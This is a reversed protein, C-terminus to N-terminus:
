GSHRVLEEIEAGMGAYPDRMYRDRVQIRENELSVVTEADVRYVGAPFEGNQETGNDDALRRAADQRQLADRTADEYIHLFRLGLFTLASCHLLGVFLVTLTLETM